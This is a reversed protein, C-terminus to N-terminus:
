KIRDAQQFGFYHNGRNGHAQQSRNDEWGASYAGSRGQENSNQVFSVSPTLLDDGMVGSGDALTTPMLFDQLMSLHWAVGIGAGAFVLPSATYAQQIRSYLPGSTTPPAV